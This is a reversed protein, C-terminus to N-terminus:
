RPVACQCRICTQDPACTPTYTVGDGTVDCPEGFEAFGDQDCLNAECRDCFHNCREGERCGATTDCFEGTADIAGNGCFAPGGPVCECGQSCTWGPGFTNFCVPNNSSEAVYDCKEGRDVRGDGCVPGPRPVTCCGDAGCTSGPGIASECNCRAEVCPVSGEICAPKAGSCDQPCNAFDEGLGCTEDGCYGGPEGCDFPCLMENGLKNKECAECTGNRCSGFAPGSCICTKTDCTGGESVCDANSRCDPNTLCVGGGLGCGLTSDTPIIAWSRVTPVVFSCMLGPEGGKPGGKCIPLTKEIKDLVTCAAEGPLSTLGSLASLLASGLELASTTGDLVGDRLGALRRNLVVKVDGTERGTIQVNGDALELFSLDFTSSSVPSALIQINQPVKPLQCLPIDQRLPGGNGDVAVDYRLSKCDASLGELSLSSSNNASASPFDTVILQFDYPVQGTAPGSSGQFSAFLTQTSEGSVNAGQPNNGCGSQIFHIFSFLLSLYFFARVRLNV